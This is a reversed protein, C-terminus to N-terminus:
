ETPSEEKKEEVIEATLPTASSEDVAEAAAQAPEAKEAEADAAASPNKAVLTKARGWLSMIGTRAAVAAESTKASIQYKENAESFFVVTKDAAQKAADQASKSPPAETFSAKRAKACLRRRYYHAAQSDYKKAIPDREKGYERM